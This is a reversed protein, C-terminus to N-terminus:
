VHGSYDETATAATERILRDLYSLVGAADEPRLKSLYSSAQGPSRRLLNSLWQKAAPSYPDINARYMKSKIESAIAPLEMVMHKVDDPARGSTAVLTRKLAAPVANWMQQTVNTSAQMHGGEHALLQPFMAGTSAALEPMPVASQLAINGDKYVVQIRRGLPQNEYVPIPRHFAADSLDQLRPMSGQPDPNGAVAARAKNLSARANAGGGYAYEKTKYPSTWFAPVPVAESPRYGAPTPVAYVSRPVQGTPKVAAPRTAPVPSNGRNVASQRQQPPAQTVGKIYAPKLGYRRARDEYSESLHQIMDEFASSKKTMFDATEKESMSMATAKVKKSKTRAKGTQVAHVPAMFRRQRDSSSPM